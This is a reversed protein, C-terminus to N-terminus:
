TARPGVAIGSRIREQAFRVLAEPAAKRGRLKGDIALMAIGHVMAWILRALQLPEDQRVQGENQLTVLSDVLVQFSGSAEAELKLDAARPDVFQGSMVRYHSPRTIAFRVYASGMLAPSPFRDRDFVGSM